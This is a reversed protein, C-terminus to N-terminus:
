TREGNHLPYPRVIQESRLYDVEIDIDLILTGLLLRECSNFLTKNQLHQQQLATMLALFINFILTQARENLCCFPPHPLDSNGRIM